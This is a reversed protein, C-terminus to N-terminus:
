IEVFGFIGLHGPFTILESLEGTFADVIRLCEYDLSNKEDRFCPKANEEAKHRSLLANNGGKLFGLMESNTRWLETGSKDLILTMPINFGSLDRISIFGTLAILKAYDHIYIEEAKFLDGNFSIPKKFIMERESSILHIIVSENIGKETNTVAVFASGDKSIAETIIPYKFLMVWDASPNQANIVPM